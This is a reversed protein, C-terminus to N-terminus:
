AEFPFVKKTRYQLNGKVDYEYMLKDGTPFVIQTLRGDPHYNYTAEPALAMISVMLELELPLANKESLKLYYVQGAELDLELVTYDLGFSDDEQDTSALPHLLDPESYLTMVPDLSMGAFEKTVFRYRGAEPALFRYYGGQGAAKHVELVQRHPLEEFIDHQVEVFQFNRYPAAFLVPNASTMKLEITGGAPIPSSTATQEGEGVVSGSADLITYDFYRAESLSANTLLKEAFSSKNKFGIQDEPELVRKLLAAESSPDAQFGEGYTFTVPPDTTVTVVVQSGTPVSLNGVQDFGAKDVAGSSLYIAYDFLAAQSAQADSSLTQTSPQLNTFVYSENKNLTVQPKEQPEGPAGTFATYVGGFTISATLPTVTISYGSSVPVSSYRRSGKSDVTGDPRYIVYSFLVNTSANSYLRQMDSSINRYTYSSGPTVNARLLAPYAAPTVSITDTYSITIASASQGTIIAYGGAPIVVDGRDEFGVRYVSGDEAHIAADFHGGIDGANSNITISKSGGNAFQYSEGFGILQKSIAEGPKGQWSFLRYNAGFTVPASVATVVISNGGSIVPDTYTNARKSQQSGDPYYEVWDFRNSSSANTRLTRRNSSINRFEYSEGQSLTVRFHSPESSPEATFDDTYDFTIGATGQVTIIAFGGAPLKPTSIADFGQSYYSGDAKYVTYDYRGSVKRANNNVPNTLTGNNTFRYSIGPSLTVRSIADNRRDGGMFTRYPAGVRLSNETILTLVVYRGVAVLPLTTTNSGRSTETGDENYVVYDFKDKATGSHEVRDQKTGVNTFIYSEGQSLPVSDYAPEDTEYGFFGEYPVAVTVPEDSAGTLIITDGVSFSPKISVEFNSRRLSGDEQYVAYDYRKGNAATADSMISRSAYAQNSFLYSEGKSLTKKLLAPVPSYSYTLEPSFSVTLPSAYDVTIITTGGRSYVSASSTHAIDDASVKGDGNYAVYDYRIDNTTRADTRVSLLKNTDNTFQVSQGPYIVLEIKDAMLYVSDTVTTYAAETVAPQAAKFSKGAVVDAVSRYVAATPIVSKPAGETAGPAVGLSGLGLIVALCSLLARKIRM